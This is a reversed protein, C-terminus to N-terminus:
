VQNKKILGYYYRNGGYKHQEFGNFKMDKVIKVGSTRENGCPYTNYIKTFESCLIKDKNNQTIIFNDDLFLKILNNEIIGSEIVIINERNQLLETTGADIIDPEIIDDVLIINERNQLLETGANVSTINERNQFLETGTDIIDNVYTINKQESPLNINNIQLIKNNIITILENKTIHEYTSKLIDLFGGAIDIILKIYELNCSFHERGSRCRYSNLINHIIQEL